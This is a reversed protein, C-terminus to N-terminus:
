IEPDGPMRWSVRIFYRRRNAMESPENPAALRAKAPAASALSRARRLFEFGGRCGGDFELVPDVGLRPQNWAGSRELALAKLAQTEDM